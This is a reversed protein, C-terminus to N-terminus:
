VCVYVCVYIYINHEGKESFKNKNFIKIKLDALIGPISATQTHTHTVSLSKAVQFSVVGVMDWMLLGTRKVLIVIRSIRFNEHRIYLLTKWKLFIICMLLYLFECTSPVCDSVRIQKLIQKIQPQFGMDLMRDAEDLVLYSVRHMNTKHSHLLDM